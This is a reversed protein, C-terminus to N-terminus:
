TCKKLLLLEFKVHSIDDEHFDSYKKLVEPSRVDWFIMFSDNKIKETGGCLLKGDCSVDFSMLPKPPANDTM